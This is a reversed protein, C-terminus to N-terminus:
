ATARSPISASGGVFVTGFSALKQKLAGGERPFKHSYEVGEIGAQRAEALCTALPTDGGIEQLDDNAWRIPNAGIRVSM